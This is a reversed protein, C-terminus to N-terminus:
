PLKGRCAARITITLVTKPQVCCFTLAYSCFSRHTKCLCRWPRPRCSFRPSWPPGPSVVTKFLPNPTQFRVGSDVPSWPFGGQTSSRTTLEPIWEVRPSLPLGRSVANDQVVITPNPFASLQTCSVVPSWVTKRLPNPTQFRM